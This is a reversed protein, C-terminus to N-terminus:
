ENEVEEEEFFYPVTNRFDPKQMLAFIAANKKYSDKNKVADRLSKSYAPFKDEIAGALKELQTDTAGYIKRIVDSSKIKEAQRAIAGAGRAVVFPRKVIDPTFSKSITAEGYGTDYGHIKQKIGQVVSERQLKNFTEDPNLGYKSLDKGTAQQFEELGTKLGKFTNKAASGSEGFRGARGIDGRIIRFLDEKYAKGSMDSAYRGIREMTQQMTNPDQPNLFQPLGKNLIQEGAGMRFLEFNKNAAAFGEVNEDLKQKLAKQLNNLVVKQDEDQVFLLRNKIEDRLTKLTRADPRLETGRGGLGSLVDTKDSRISDLINLVSENARKNPALVQQADDLATSLDSVDIKKTSADVIDNLEKGLVKEVSLIQETIEKATNTQREELLEKGAKTIFDTGAKSEEFAVLAAEPEDFMTALKKAGEAGKKILKGAGMGALHFAPAVVAGSAAGGLIDKGLQEIGERGGLITAESTGAGALAGGAAGTLATRGLTRLLGAGAAPAAAGGSIVSAGIAPLIAGGFEAATGLVPSREKSMKIKEQELALYKKYLDEFEGGTAQSESLAKAAAVGEDAFGFTLGQAGLRTVDEASELAKEGLYKGSEVIGRGLAGAASGVASEKRQRIPQSVEQSSEEAMKYGKELAASIDERKIKKLEGEPNYVPVLDLNDM